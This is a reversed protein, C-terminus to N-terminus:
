DEFWEIQESWAALVKDIQKDSLDNKFTLKLEAVSGSGPLPEASLVTPFGLGFGRLWTLDDGIVRNFYIRIERGTWSWSWDLKSSRGQPSRMTMGPEYLREAVPKPQRPEERKQDRFYDEIRPAGQMWGVLCAFESELRARVAAVREREEAESAESAENSPPQDSSSATLRWRLWAKNAYGALVCSDADKVVLCGADEFCSAGREHTDVAELGSPTNRTVEIM